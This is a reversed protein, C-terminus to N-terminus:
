IAYDSLHKVFFGVDGASEPESPGGRRAVAAVHNTGSQRPGSDPQGVLRLAIAGNEKQRKYM